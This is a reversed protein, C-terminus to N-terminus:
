FERAVVKRKSGVGRDRLEVFSVSVGEPLVRLLNATLRERDSEALCPEALIEIRLAWPGEHAIRFHKVSAHKEVVAEVLYPSLVTGDPFALMESLRGQLDALQESSRGCACVESEIKGSDGLEYRVLPMAENVLSTVLLRPMGESSDYSEVYVSEFNLHYRGRECQVAIEKFETSGYIDIVRGRYARELSARAAATLVESSTYIVPVAPIAIKAHAAADALAALYSPFGYIVTPRFSALKRADEALESGLRMGRISLFFSGLGPVASRSEDPVEEDSIILLRQRSMGIESLVRRAKLAYKCFLWSREDFYTVTPEGTTGSSRSFRLRNKEFADALFDDPRAQVDAKTVIPFRGIDEVSRLERAPIGLAAYFPVHEVAYRLLAVLRARQYERIRDTSWWQSRLLGLTDAVLRAQSRLHM